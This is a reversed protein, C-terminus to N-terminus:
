RCFETEKTRGVVGCVRQLLRRNIARLSMPKGARASRLVADILKSRPNLRHAEELHVVGSRRGDLADIAGLELLAYWNEPDRELARTFSERARPRDGLQSAITGATLDPSASVFNLRRARDLRAYAAELDSGWGSRALEVERAAAWPVALVSAALVVLVGQAILRVPRPVWRRPGPESAPSDPEGGQDAAAARRGPGANMGAAMGLWGFVPATLAPFAWLWDGLGHLWWYGFTALATAAIGARLWGDAARRVSAVAVLAAIIFGGFLASGVLGTGALVQIPLSHPFLPEEDSERHQVYAVAFNDAGAGTVPSELFEDDVAVRWFDYRNSGLDGGLRTAGFGTSDYGGKFDDWRDGAWTAPNGIAVITIVVGATVAAAVLGGGVKRVARATDASLELRSDVRAIVLGVTLLAVASVSMASRAGAFAGTLDGGDEAVSFVDLVTPAVIFTALGVPLLFAIARLRHPVVLLYFGLAIPLVVIMGRSQPLLAMQVLLGTIALMSGRPVWHVERCSALFAAPWVGVMCLAAVANSYGMPEAFRGNILALEAQGSAADSVAAFVVAAVAVSFAGLVLAATGPRWEICSFLLFAILYLLTRNAGDLAVGPVGAWVVSLFSWLVFGTLLLLAFRHAVGLRLIRDRYALLAVVTLGLLFLAGPYWSTQSYGGGDTMWLTFLGVCLLGPILEARTSLPRLRAM